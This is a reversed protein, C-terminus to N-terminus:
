HIISPVGWSLTVTMPALRYQEQAALKEIPEVVVADIRADIETPAQTEKELAIWFAAVDAPACFEVTLKQWIGTRAVDYHDTNSRGLNTTRDAPVFECKFCLAPTDAGLRDVRLWATLRYLQGAVMPRSPSRVYNWGGRIAGRVHLCGRRDGGAAQTV